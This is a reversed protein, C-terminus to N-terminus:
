QFCFSQARLPVRVSEIMGRRTGTHTARQGTMILVFLHSEYILLARLPPKQLCRQFTEHAETNQYFSCDFEFLCEM